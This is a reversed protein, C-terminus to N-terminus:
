GGLRSRGQAATHHHRVKARTSGTQRLSPQAHASQSQAGDDQASVRGKPGHVDPSDSERHVSTVPCGVFTLVYVRRYLLRRTIPYSLRETAGQECPEVAWSRRRHGRTHNGSATSVEERKKFFHKVRVPKEVVGGFFHSTKEEKYRKIGESWSQADHMVSANFTGM